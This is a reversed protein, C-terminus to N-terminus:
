GYINVFYIKYKGWLLLDTEKLSRTCTCGSSTFGGQECSAVETLCERGPRNEIVSEVLRKQCFGIVKMAERTNDSPTATLYVIMDSWNVEPLSDLYEHWQEICYPDTTLGAAIVKREYRARSTASLASFYESKREM